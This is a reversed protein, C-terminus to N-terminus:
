LPCLRMGEAAADHGFLDVREALAQVLVAVVVGGVAVGLRDRLQQPPRHVAAEELRVVAEPEARVHDALVAARGGQAADGVVGRVM